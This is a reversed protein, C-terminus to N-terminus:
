QHSFMKNLAAISLPGVAGNAAAIAAPTAVGEQKQWATVAAATIPGFFESVPQLFPFTGIIKLAIQLAQVDPSTMGPKLTERWTHNFDAQAPLSKVIALIAAPIETIMWAEVITHQDLYFWGIDGDLDQPNTGGEIGSTSAWNKSWHNRFTVKIRGTGEETVLGIVTIDHDDIATVVKRIPIIDAKAWSGAGAPNTYWEAGLALEIVVGDPELTLAQALDAATVNGTTGVQVDGPIRNKDADTFSEQPMNQVSFNYAYDPYSLTTDNPVTTQSAIGYKVGIKFPMNTYTGQNDAPDAIGDEMKSLAYTFRPSLLPCSGNKRQLYHTATEVFAHNQCAGIERQFFDPVQSYDILINYSATAPAPTGAVHQLNIQRYDKPSAKAGGRAFKQLVGVIEQELTM